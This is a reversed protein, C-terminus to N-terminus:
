RMFLVVFNTNVIFGGVDLKVFANSDFAGEM